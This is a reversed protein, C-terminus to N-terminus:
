REVAVTVSRTFRRAGRSLIVAGRWVGSAWGGAPRKSGAFAMRWAQDKKLNEQTRLFVSGDPASITLALRDGDRVGFAAGWLVLAPASSPLRAPSSADGIVTEESVPGPAFGVAYLTTEAYGHRGEERWLPKGSLGCGSGIERGNAPDLTKGGLRVSVHLHPFETKGSLGVKGLKAGRVVADGPRVSLSGQKMHCYQTEWGGGHDIVLGNGCEKGAVNRRDVDTRLRRDIVRDRARKVVGSAAALVSVGRAMAAEDPIAFDTGKHGQYSRVGCAFDRVRSGAATDPYNIVWCDVGLACALPLSFGGDPPAPQAVANAAVLATLLFAAADPFGNSFVPPM